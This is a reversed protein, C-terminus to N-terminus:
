EQTILTGTSGDTLLARLITHAKTGNLIRASGAGEELAIIGSEVKPIMGGEISNGIESQAERATVKKILTSPDEPDLQLGDVNTLAVYSAAGLAGALHGAFMDANVNYAGLEEGGAVPSIVPIYDHEILLQILSTDIEAVDGVHGLDVEQEEGDITLRHMRKKATVLNGDKGSLGVAKFGSKNILGVLESNVSGSLAMEVYNMTQADTKRHGGVFESEIGVDDLLNRIIPGGGHVIVPIAGLNKLAVIDSIIDHKVQEDIM